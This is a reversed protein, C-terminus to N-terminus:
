DTVGLLAKEDDAFIEYEDDAAATSGGGPVGAADSGDGYLSKAIAAVAKRKAEELRMREDHQELLTPATDRAAGIRAKLARARERSATNFEQVKEAATKPEEKSERRRQRDHRNLDKAVRESAAQIKAKRAADTQAKAAAEAERMRRAKQLHEAKLETSRTTAPAEKPGSELAEARAADRQARKLERERREKAKQGERKSRKKKEEAELREKSCMSFPEATTPRFSGRANSLTDSWRQQLQAFNPAKKARFPRRRGARGGTSAGDDKEAGEQIAAWLKMRPPLEASRMMEDARRAIRQRRMEEAMQSGDFANGSKNTPATPVPRARFTHRLKDEAQVERLTSMKRERRQRAEEERRLLGAPPKGRSMRLAKVADAEEAELEDLREKYQQEKRQEELRKKDRAYM